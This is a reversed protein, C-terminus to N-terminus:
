STSPSICKMVGLTEQFKGHTQAFLGDIDRQYFQSTQLKQIIYVTVDTQKSM